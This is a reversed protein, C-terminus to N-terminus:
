NALNRETTTPGKRATTVAGPSAVEHTHGHTVCARAHTQRAQSRQSSARQTVEARGSHRACLRAMADAADHSLRSAWEAM